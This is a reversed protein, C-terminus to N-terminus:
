VVSKRDGCSVIPEIEAVEMAARFLEMDSEIILIFVSQPTSNIIDLIHRGLGFGCIIIVESSKLNGYDTIKKVGRNIDQRRFIIERGGSGSILMGNNTFKINESLKANIVRKSLHPDFRDLVEINKQFINM